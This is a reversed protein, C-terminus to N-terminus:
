KSTSKKNKEGKKGSSKNKLLDKKSGSILDDLDDLSSKKKEVKMVKKKSDFEDLAAFIDKEVAKKVVKKTVKPLVNKSEKKGTTKVPKSPVKKVPKIIKKKVPAKASFKKKIAENKKIRAVRVKRKQVGKKLVSSLKDFEDEKKDKSSSLVDLFSSSTKGKGLDSLNLFGDDEKKKEERFAINKKKSAGEKKFPLEPNKPLENLNIYSGDDINDLPTIVGRRDDPEGDKYKFKEKPPLTSPGFRDFVKVRRKMREDTRKKFLEREKQLRKRMMMLQEPSIRPRHHMSRPLAIAKRRVIPNAARRAAEQQARERERERRFYEDRQQFILQYKYVLYGGSALLLLIAFLFVFWPWLPSADEGDCDQDIDDGRIESAGPHISSDDDNCDPGGYKAGEFGDGDKDKVELVVKDNANTGCNYEQANTQGDEDPDEYSDDVSLDLKYKREFADDIGDSDTDAPSDFADNARTHSFNVEGGDTFGDGDTDANQPDLNYNYEDFNSLCDNDYDLNADDPDSPDLGHEIEWNDDILDGDVDPPMSEADLPDTGSTVEGGDYFGDGDTDPNNPDTGLRCEDVNLLGDRDNDLMADSPDYPDLGNAEECTDTMGDDDSDAEESEECIGDVCNNSDCDANEGCAQGVDCKKPCVGGCDVDSEDGNLLGDFCIDGSAPMCRFGICNGSECDSNVECAAGDPCAPCVSGGCDPYFKPDTEGPDWVGNTCTDVPVTYNFEPGSSIKKRAIVGDSSGVGSELGANNIAKVAVFYTKNEELDIKASVDTSTTKTWDLINVFDTGNGETGIRYMYHSIGSHEDESGSITFEIRSLTTENGDDVTPASPPSMDVVFTMSKEIKPPPTSFECLAEVTHEGESLGSLPAVHDVDGTQTFSLKGGDDLEYSCSAAKNSKLKLEATSIGIYAAPSLFEFDNEESSDVTIALSSVASFDEARNQCVVYYTHTQDDPLESFNITNVVNFEEEQFGDFWGSNHTTGVRDEMTIFLLEPNATEAINNTYVCRTKDDTVVMMTTERTISVVPNPDATLSAISPPTPDYQFEVKVGVPNIFGTLEQCKVYIYESVAEVLPFLDIEDENLLFQRYNDDFRRWIINTPSPVPISDFNFFQNSADYKCIEGDESTELVLDFPKYNAVGWSPEIVKITLPNADQVFKSSGVALNGALDKATVQWTIEGDTMAYFVDHALAYEDAYYGSLDEDNAISNEVKVPEDSEVRFHVDEVTNVFNDVPRLTLLPATRDIDFFIQPDNTNGFIDKVNLKLIYSGEPIASVGAPLMPQFSWEHSYLVTGMTIIEYVEDEDFEDVLIASVVTSNEDFPVTIIPNAYNTPWLQVIEGQAGAFLVYNFSSVVLLLLLALLM